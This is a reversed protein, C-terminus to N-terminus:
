AAPRAAGRRGRVARLLIAEVREAQRRVDHEEAAARAATNPRPLAAAATLGGALDGEDTPDVLVGAGPGVFEPPGGVRTAVVSRGGAMGELLALGFPEVLSPQCVVHSRGIWGPIEDHTVTGTVTVGPRGELAPRLPGDGVFTLTGEDVRGFADALRVVNKREILSGICLFRTPGGPAPEIRFRELDVGCDVVEVKGRAAPV